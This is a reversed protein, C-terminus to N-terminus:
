AGNYGKRSFITAASKTIDIRKRDGVKASKWIDANNTRIMKSIM